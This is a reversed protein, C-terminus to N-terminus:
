HPHMSVVRRQGDLWVLSKKGRFTCAPGGPLAKGPGFNKEFFDNDEVIGVFDKAFDVGCEVHANQNVGSFAVARM